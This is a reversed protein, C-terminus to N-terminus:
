LWGRPTLALGLRRSSACFGTRDVAGGCSEAGQLLLESAVPRIPQHYPHRRRTLPRIRPLHRFCLVKLVLPSLTQRVCDTEEKLYGVIQVSLRLQLTSHTQRQARVKLGNGLGVRRWSTTEYIDLNDFCAPWPIMRTRGPRYDITRGESGAYNNSQEVHFQDDLDM